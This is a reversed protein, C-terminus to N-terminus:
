AGYREAFQKAVQKKLILSLVVAAGIGAIILLGTKNQQVVPPLKKFVGDAASKTAPNASLAMIAGVAGIATGVLGLAKGIAERQADDATMKLTVEAPPNSATAM